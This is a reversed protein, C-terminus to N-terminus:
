QKIGHKSLELQELYEVKKIIVELRKTVNGLGDAIRENSEIMKKIQDIEERSYHELNDLSREAGKNSEPGPQLCAAARDSIVERNELYPSDMQNVDTHYGVPLKGRISAVAMADQEIKKELLADAEARKTRKTWKKRRDMMQKLIMVDGEFSSNRNWIVILEFNMNECEVRIEKNARKFDDNIIKKDKLQFTNWSCLKAVHADTKNVRRMVNQKAKSVELKGKDFPHYIIMSDILVALRKETWVGYNKSPQTANSDNNNNNNNNNSTM